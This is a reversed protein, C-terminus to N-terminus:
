QGGRGGTSIDHETSPVGERTGVMLGLRIARFSHQMQTAVTAASNNGRQEAPHWTIAVNHEGIQGSMYTHNDQADQLPTPHREDLIATATTLETSLDCIWGVMYDQHSLAPITV